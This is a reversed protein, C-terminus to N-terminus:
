TMVDYKICYTYSVSYRNCDTEEWSKCVASACCCLLVVVLRCLLLGTNQEVICRLVISVVCVLCYRTTNKSEYVDFRRLRELQSNEPAVKWGDVPQTGKGFQSFEVVLFVRPSHVRNCALEFYCKRSTHTLM